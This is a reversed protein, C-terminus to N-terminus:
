LLDLFERFIRGEKTEYGVYSGQEKNIGMSLANEKEDMLGVSVDLIGDENFKLKSIINNIKVNLLIIGDKINLDLEETM